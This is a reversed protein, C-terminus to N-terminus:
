SFVFLLLTLIILLPLRSQGLAILGDRLSLTEARDPGDAHSAAGKLYSLLLECLVARWPEYFTSVLLGGPLLPDVRHIRLVRFTWRHPRGVRAIQAVRQVHLLRGLTFYVNRHTLKVDCLLNWAVALKHRRSQFFWVSGIIPGYQNSILINFVTVFLHFLDARRVSELTVHTDFPVAWIIQLLCLEYGGLDVKLADRGVGHSLQKIGTWWFSPRRHAFM